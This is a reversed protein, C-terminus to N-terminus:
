RLDKYLGVYVVHKAVTEFFLYLHEVDGIAKNFRKGDMGIRKCLEAQSMVGEEKLIAAARHIKDLTDATTKYENKAKKRTKNHSRQSHERQTFGRMYSLFSDETKKSGTHHPTTRWLQIHAYSSM